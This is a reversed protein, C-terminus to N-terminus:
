RHAKPNTLRIWHSSLPKPHRQREFSIGRLGVDDEALRLTGVPSNLNDYCVADPTTTV